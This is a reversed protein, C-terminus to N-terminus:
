GISKAKKSSCVSCVTAPARDAGDGNGQVEVWFGLSGVRFCCRYFCM